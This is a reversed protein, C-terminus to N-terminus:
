KEPFKKYNIVIDKLDDDEFLSESNRDKPNKKVSTKLKHIANNVDEKSLMYEEYIDEVSEDLYYINYRGGKKAELKNVFGKDVLKNILSPVNTVNKVANHNKFIQKFEPATFFVPPKKYDESDESIDKNYKRNIKSLEYNNLVDEILIEEEQLKGIDHDKMWKFQGSSEILIEDIEDQTKLELEKKLKLIMNREHVQLGAGDYNINIFKQVDEVKPILYEKEEGNITKKIKFSREYNLFTYTEMMTLLQKVKRTGTSRASSVKDFTKIFPVFIVLEEKKKEYQIIKYKLFEHFEELEILTEDYYANEFTGVLKSDQMFKLKDENTNTAPSSSTTRSELQSTKDMTDEPVTSYLCGLTGRIEIEITKWKNGKMPLKKRSIYEGETVIIKIIDFIDELKEIKKENDLDGM